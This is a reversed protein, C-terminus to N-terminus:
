KYWITNEECINLGNNSVNASILLGILMATERAHCLRGRLCTGWRSQWKQVPKCHSCQVGLDQLDNSLPVLVYFVLSKQKLVSYLKAYSELGM